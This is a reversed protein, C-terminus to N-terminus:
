LNQENNDMYPKIPSISKDIPQNETERRIREVLNRYGLCHTSYDSCIDFSFKVSELITIKAQRIYEEAAFEYAAETRGYYEIKEKLIEHFDKM